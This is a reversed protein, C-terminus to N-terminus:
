PKMSNSLSFDAASAMCFMSPNSRHPRLNFTPRTLIALAGLPAAAPPIDASASTASAVMDDVDPREVPKETAARVACARAM